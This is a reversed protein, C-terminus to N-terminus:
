VCVNCMHHYHERSMARAFQMLPSDPKATVQLDIDDPIQIGLVSCVEDLCRIMENRDFKELGFMMNVVSKMYDKAHTMEQSKIVCDNCEYHQEYDYPTEYAFM